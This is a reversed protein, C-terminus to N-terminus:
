EFIINFNSETMNQIIRSIHMFAFDERRGLSRWETRFEDWAGHDHNEVGSDHDPDEARLPLFWVYIYIYIYIYVYM